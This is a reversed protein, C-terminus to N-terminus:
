KLTERKGTSLLSKVTKQPNFQEIDDPVNQGFTVYAIPAEVCLKLNMLNGLASTEDLKTFILQYDTLEKYSLAIRQLDRYKTTASLVLFTQCEGAERVAKLLQRMKDLLEENQHSHGATDVFIYDYDKFDSIATKVEEESYIVRFPAELINAYTRLQEAAAIRYTDATLLAVKKGENVSYHSAIKAITTTKGIGTPGMFLLTKPGKEAPTIGEAKGFKLIMKQYVNALIYDFPLKPKRNKELDDVIQNAYKEDVENEMMTNYLLRIFKEQERSGDDPTGGKEKEEGEPADSREEGQEERAEEQQFRTVLMTQLSDLKKEINQSSESMVNVATQAARVGEHLKATDPDAMRAAERRVAKLSDSDEELAVTVEVQKGGFVGSFGKKKTTKVNMIVVGSGLEKRAAETAEEETKGVFKKIIM